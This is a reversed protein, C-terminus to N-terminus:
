EEAGRTDFEALVGSREEADLDRLPTTPALGMGALRRRTSVKGAGPLSELVFLIRVAGDDSTDARALLQALTTSGCSLDERLRERRARFGSAWELAAQRETTDTTAPEM